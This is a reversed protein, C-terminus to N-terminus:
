SKKFHKLCQGVFSVTASYAVEHFSCLLLEFTVSPKVVINVPSFCFFLFLSLWCM